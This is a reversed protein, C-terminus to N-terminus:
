AVLASDRCFACDDEEGLLEMDWSSSKCTFNILCHKFVYGRLTHLKYYLRVGQPLKFAMDTLVQPARWWPIPDQGESPLVAYVLRSERDRTETLLICLFTLM